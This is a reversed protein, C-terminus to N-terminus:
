RMYPCFNFDPVILLYGAEVYVLLILLIRNTASVRVNNPDSQLHEIRRCLLTEMKRTIGYSKIYTMISLLFEVVERSQSLDISELHHLVSKM